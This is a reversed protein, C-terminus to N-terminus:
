EGIRNETLHNSMSSGITPPVSPLSQNGFTKQQLFMRENLPISNCTTDNMCQKTNKTDDQAREFQPEDDIEMNTVSEGCSQTSPQHCIESSRQTLVRTPSLNLESGEPISRSNQKVLSEHEAKLANIQKELSLKAQTVGQNNQLKIIDRLLDSSIGLRQNETSSDNVYSMQKLPPMLPIDAEKATITDSSYAISNLTRKSGTRLNCSPTIQPKQIELLNDDPENKAKKLQLIDKPNTNQNKDITEIETKCVVNANDERKSTENSEDGSYRKNKVKSSNMSFDLPKDM